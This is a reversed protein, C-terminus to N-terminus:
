RSANPLEIRTCAPVVAILSTASILRSQSGGPEDHSVDSNENAPAAIGVFVFAIMATAGNGAAGATARRAYVIVISGPGGTAVSTVAIAKPSAHVVHVGIM